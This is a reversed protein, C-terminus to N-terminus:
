DSTNWALCVDFWADCILLTATVVLGLMAIQRRKLALWGTVGLCLALAVDFGIWVVNWARVSYSKTFQRLSQSEFGPHKRVVTKLVTGNPREPMGGSRWPIPRPTVSHGATGRARPASTNGHRIRVVVGLIDRSPIAGFFRSDKSSPRNDGLVFYTEAAIPGTPFCQATFSACDTVTGRPLYSETLAKGDVVLRGKVSTVVDGPMGVVRKALATVSPDTGTPPRVVVIDGRTIAGYHTTVDLTDGAHIAPEMSGSPVVYSADISRSPATTPTPTSVAVTTTHRSAAVAVVGVVCVIAVAILAPAFRRAPSRRVADETEPTVLEIGSAGANALTELRDRLDNM